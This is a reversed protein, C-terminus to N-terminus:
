RLAAAEMEAVLELMETADGSEAIKSWAETMEAETVPFEPLPDKLDADGRGLTNACQELFTMYYCYYINALFWEHDKNEPDLFEKVMNRHVTESSYAWGVLSRMFEDPRGWGIAPDDKDMLDGYIAERQEETMPGRAGELGAAKIREAVLAKHEAAVLENLEQLRRQAKPIYTHLDGYTSVTNHFDFAVPEPVSDGPVPPVSDVPSVPEVPAVPDGLGNGPGPRAGPATGIDRPPSDPGAPGGKKSGNSEGSCAALSVALLVAMAVALVRHYTRM